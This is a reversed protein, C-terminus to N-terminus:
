HPPRMLEEELEEEATFVAHPKGGEQELDAEEQPYVETQEETLFAADEVPVWGEKVAGDVAFLIAVATEDESLETVYVITDEGLTGMVVGLYPNYYVQTDKLALAYRLGGKKALSGEAGWGSGEAEPEATEAATFAANQLLVEGQDVDATEQEYAAIEEETLPTVDEAHLWAEKAEGEM